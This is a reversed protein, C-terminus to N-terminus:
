LMATLWGRGPLKTISQLMKFTGMVLNEMMDIFGLAMDKLITIRRKIGEFRTSIKHQDTTTYVVGIILLDRYDIIYIKGNVILPSHDVVSMNPPLSIICIRHHDHMSSFHLIMCPDYGEAAINMLEEKFKKVLAVNAIASLASKMVYGVGAKGTKVMIRYKMTEQKRVLLQDFRPFYIAICSIFRSTTTVSSFINPFTTFSSLVKNPPSDYLYLESGVKM